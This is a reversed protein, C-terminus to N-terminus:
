SFLVLLISLSFIGLRTYTIRGTPLEWLDMKDFLSHQKKTIANRVDTQEKQNLKVRDGSSIQMYETNADITKPIASVKVRYGDVLTVETSTSATPNISTSM